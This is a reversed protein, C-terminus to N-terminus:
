KKGTRGRTTKSNKSSKYASKPLLLNHRNVLHDNNFGNEFLVQYLMIGGHRFGAASAHLYFRFMRVFREDYKALIKGANKEFKALWADLTLAYHLRMNEVDLPYLTLEDVNQEVPNLIETLSPMYSGPFIYKNLWPNTSSPKMKGITHILIRGHPRLHKQIISYLTKYNSKGVHELMGVSVFKDFRDIYKPIHRYDDLIYEVRGDLKQKKAKEKAYAVQEKSINFSIMKVGYNKAAYRALGGWGCGAEVVTEGPKLDLKRCVLDLKNLQAQNLTDKMSTFYACTYQMEEDLWLSYFDNGLDYHSHINKQSGKLTNRSAVYSYLIKATEIASPKFGSDVICFGLNVVQQMDGEIDISENMYGEGFGIDGKILLDSIAADNKFIIKFIPKAEQNRYSSGNPFEIEYSNPFPVRSLLKILEEKVSMTM